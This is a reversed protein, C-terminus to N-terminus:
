AAADLRNVGVCLLRAAEVMVAVQRDDSFGAWETETVDETGFLRRLGTGSSSLIEQRFTDSMPAPMRNGVVSMIEEPIGFALGGYEFRRVQEAAGGALAAKHDLIMVCAAELLSRGALGAQLETMDEGAAGVINPMGRPVDKLLLLSTFAAAGNPCVILSDLHRRKLGAHFRLMNRAREAAVEDFRTVAARSMTNELLGRLRRRGAFLDATAITKM